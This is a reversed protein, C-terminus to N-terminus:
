TTPRPSVHRAFTNAYRTDFKIRTIDSYWIIHPKESWVGLGNYGHFEAFDDHAEVIVGLFFTQTSGSDDDEEDNAENNEYPEDEDEDDPDDTEIITHLNLAAISVIADHMSDIDIEPPRILGSLANEAALMRDWLEEHESRRVEDVEETRIITYGDPDFDAFTHFLALDDSLALLYGFVPEDDDHTTVRIAQNTALHPLLDPHM